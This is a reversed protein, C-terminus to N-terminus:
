PGTEFVCRRHTQEVVKVAIGQDKGALFVQRAFDASSATTVVDMEARGEMFSIEEVNTVTDDLSALLQQFQLKREFDAGSLVVRIREQAKGGTDAVLLRNLIKESFKRAADRIAAKAAVASSLDTAGGEGDNIALIEGTDCLFIRGEIRARCARMNNGAIRGPNVDQSFAEGVLLLEAGFNQAIALLEQPDDKMARKVLDKDRITQVQNADVTRFGEELFLRTVETEGAPDPIPQAIHYEPIIIMVRLKKLPHEGTFQKVWENVARDDIEAAVKVEIYGTRKRQQLVDEQRILLARLSAIDSEHLSREIARKAGPKILDQRNLWTLLLSRIARARAEEEDISQPEGSPRVIGIAEMRFGRTTTSEQGNVIATSLLVSYAVTVIITSLQM